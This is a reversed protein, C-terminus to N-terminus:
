RGPMEAVTVRLCSGSSDRASGPRRSRGRQYRWLRAVARLGHLRARADHMRGVCRGEL